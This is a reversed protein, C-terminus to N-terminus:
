KLSVAIMLIIVYHQIAAHLATYSAPLIVKLYIYQPIAICM